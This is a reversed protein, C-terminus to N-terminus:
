PTNHAYMEAISLAISTNESNIYENQFYYFRDVLRM